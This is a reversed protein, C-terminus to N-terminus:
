TNVANSIAMLMITYKHPGYILSTSSWSVSSVLIAALPIMPLLQAM